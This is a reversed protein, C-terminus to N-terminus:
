SYQEIFEVVEPSQEAPLDRAEEPLKQYFITM